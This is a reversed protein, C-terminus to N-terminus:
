FLKNPAIATSPLDFTGSPVSPNSFDNLRNESPKNFDTNKDGQKM